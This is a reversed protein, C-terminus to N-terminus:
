SLCAAAQDEGVAERDDIVTVTLELLLGSPQAEGVYTGAQLRQQVLAPTDELEGGV